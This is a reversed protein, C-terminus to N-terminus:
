KCIKIPTLRHLEGLLPVGEVDCCIVSLRMAASLFLQVFWAILSFFIFLSFLSFLICKTQNFLGRRSLRLLVEQCHQIDSQASVKAHDFILKSWINCFSINLVWLRNNATYTVIQWFNLKNIEKKLFFLTNSLFYYMLYIITVYDNMYWLLLHIYIIGM